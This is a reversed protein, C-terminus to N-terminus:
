SPCCLRHSKRKNSRQRRSRGPPQWSPRIGARSRSRCATPSPSTPKAAARGRYRSRYKPGPLCHLAAKAAALPCQASSNTIGKKRQQLGNSIARIATAARHTRRSSSLSSTLSSNDDRGPEPDEHSKLQSLNLVQCRILGWSQIHSHFLPFGSSKHFRTGGNESDHFEKMRKM